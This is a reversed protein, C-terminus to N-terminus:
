VNQIFFVSMGSSMSNMSLSRRMTPMTWFASGCVKIPRETPRGDCYTSSIPPPRLPL